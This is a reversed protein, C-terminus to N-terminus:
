AHKVRALGRRYKIYGAVYLATILWTGLIKLIDTVTFKLYTGDLLCGIIAYSAVLFGFLMWAFVFNNYLNKGPIM